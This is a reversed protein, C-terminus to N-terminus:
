TSTVLVASYEAERDVPALEPLTVGEQDPSLVVRGLVPLVGLQDGRDGCDHGLTVHLLAAKGVAIDASPRELLAGGRPVRGLLGARGGMPLSSVGHSSVPQHPGRWAITSRLRVQDHSM